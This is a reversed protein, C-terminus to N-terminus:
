VRGGWTGGLEVGRRKEGVKVEEGGWAMGEGVAGGEV